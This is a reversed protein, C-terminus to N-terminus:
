LLRSFLAVTDQVRPYDKVSPYYRYEKLPKSGSDGCLSSIFNVAEVHGVRWLTLANSYSWSLVNNTEWDPLSFPLRYLEPLSGPHLENAQFEFWGYTTLVIEALSVIPEMISMLLGEYITEPNTWLDAGVTELAIIKELKGVSGRAILGLAELGSPDHSAGETYLKGDVRAPDFLWPMALAAWFREETLDKQSFAELKQTSLNFANLYFEKPYDRLKDWAVINDLMSVRSCMGKSFYNLTTPTLMTIMLDLADNYLRKLDNSFREKASMSFRPLKQGARWAIESFPGQKFFVKYNFPMLAEIQNTINLNVSEQLAEVRSGKAPAAYLLGPLAGAGSAGIVDFSIKKEYFACLAGASLHMNPAGGGVLIGLRSPEYWWAPEGVPVPRAQSATKAQGTNAEELKQTEEPKKGNKRDKANKLRDFLADLMPKVDEDRGGKAAGWYRWDDLNGSKGLLVDAFESAKRYGINKLAVANSHSWKLMDEPSHGEMPFEVRYLPPLTSPPKAFQKVGLDTRAYLAEGIRELAVYPNTMMLQFADRINTPERWFASSMTDLTVVMELGSEKLWIAQLGAADHTLGSVFEEGGSGDDSVVRRPAHLLTTSQSAYYVDANINSRDFIKVKKNNLDFTSIYLRPDAMGRLKSFDILDEIMPNHSALGASAWQFSPTLAMISLDIWDNVLRKFFAPEDPPINFHPVAKRVQNVQGLFESNRALLRFNMPFLTYALDSVYLNPLEELAEKASKRKPALALLAILAEPGSTSIVHFKIKKDMFALMAGCSLAITPGYGSLVLGIRKTNSGNTM